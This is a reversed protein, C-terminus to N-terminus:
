RGVRNKKPIFGKLCMNKKKAKDLWIESLLMSSFQVMWSLGGRKYRWKKM